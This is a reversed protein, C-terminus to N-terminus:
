SLKATSHLPFLEVFKRFPYYASILSSQLNEVLSDPPLSRCLTEPLRNGPLSRLLLAPSPAHPFFSLPPPTLGKMRYLRATSIASRKDTVEVDRLVLILDFEGIVEDRAPAPHMTLLPFHRRALNLLRDPSFALEFQIGLAM